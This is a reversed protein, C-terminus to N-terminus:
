SRCVSASGCFLMKSAPWCHFSHSKQRLPLRESQVPAPVAASSQPLQASVFSQISAWEYTHYSCIAASCQFAVPVAQQLTFCCLHSPLCQLLSYQPVVCFMYLLLVPNSFSSTINFAMFVTFIITRLSSQFLILSFLPNHLM